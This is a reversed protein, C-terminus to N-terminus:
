ALGCVAGVQDHLQEAFQMVLTITVVAYWGCLLIAIQPSDAGLMERLMAWPDTM